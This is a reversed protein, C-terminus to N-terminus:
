SIRVVSKIARKQLDFKLFKGGRYTKCPGKCCLPGCLESCEGRRWFGDRFRLHENGVHVFKNALAAAMVFIFFVRDCIGLFCWEVGCAFFFALSDFGLGGSVAFALKECSERTSLVPTPAPGTMVLIPLM